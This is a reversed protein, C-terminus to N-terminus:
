LINPLHKRDVDLYTRWTSCASCSGWNERARNSPESSRDKDEQKKSRVLSKMTTVLQLHKSMDTQLVAEILKDRVDNFRTQRTNNLTNTSLGLAKIHIPHFGISDSDVGFMRAFSHSLHIKELTSSNNHSFSYRTRANTRFANNRGPHKVDHVAAVLLICFLDVSTVEVDGISMQILSQLNQLVDIARRTISHTPRTVM